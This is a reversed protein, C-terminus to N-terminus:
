AGDRDLLSVEIQRFSLLLEHSFDTSYATPGRLKFLYALGKVHNIWGTLNKDPCEVAEYIVLCMCAALNEEKYAVKPDWLAKQLEWLGQVYFKLSERILGQDNNLRGLSSICVALISAELSPTFSPLTPLMSIWGLRKSSLKTEASAKASL